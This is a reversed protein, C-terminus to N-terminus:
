LGSIGPNFCRELGPIRSGPIPIGVQRGVGGVEGANSASTGGRDLSRDDLESWSITGDKLMIVTSLRAKGTEAALRQFLTGECRVEAGDSV